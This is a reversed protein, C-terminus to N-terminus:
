VSKRALYVITYQDHPVCMGVLHCQFRKKEVLLAVMGGHPAHLCYPHHPILARAAVNEVHIPSASVPIRRRPKGSITRGLAAQDLEALRQLYKALQWNEYHLTIYQVQAKFGQMLDTCIRPGCM